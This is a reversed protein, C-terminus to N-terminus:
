KKDGLGLYVVNARTPDIVSVRITNTTNIDKTEWTLGGNVSKFITAGIAVFINNSNSPNVVVSTSKQSQDRLPLNITAWSAGDNVTRILGAETALYVVGSQKQDLALDYFSKISKVGGTVYSSISSSTLSVTIDEWTLGYDSSKLVGKQSLLAYIQNHDLQLKILRDQFDKIAQWTQGKDNSRIIEGSALGAIVTDNRLQPVTISLVPNNKSPETYIDIWSSGGDLSKIIKGNGLVLGAAYVVKTDIPDISIDAVAMGSLIFTWNKASDTSKYIGKTSALYLVDTNGPELSIDNVSVSGINGKALRNAPRFTQGNDESKFVGRTGTNVAFGDTLLNDCAAAIFVVSVLAIALKKM